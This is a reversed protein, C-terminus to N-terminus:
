LITSRINLNNKSDNGWVKVAINICDRLYVLEDFKWGKGDGVL